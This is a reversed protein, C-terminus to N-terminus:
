SKNQLCAKVLENVRKSDARGQVKPIIVKMVKGMDKPGFAGLEKVAQDIIATVEEDSLPKPLYGSLINLEEQEQKVLDDRGGKQFLELSEKRQKALTVLVALVQSEDLAGRNEIEKNKLAAKILRLCSVKSPQRNRMAQKFDAEIREQLSM